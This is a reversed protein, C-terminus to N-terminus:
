TRAGHGRFSDRISSGTNEYVAHINEVCIDGPRITANGRKIAPIAVMAGLETMISYLENNGALYTFKELLGDEITLSPCLVLVRDAIGEALAIAALGYMVY